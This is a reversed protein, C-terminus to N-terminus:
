RGGAVYPALFNEAEELTRVVKYPHPPAKLQFAVKLAGRVMASPVVIALAGVYAALEQNNREGFEAIMKVHDLDIRTTASADALVCMPSKRYLENEYEVFVRAFDDHSPTPGVTLRCLPHESADFTTDM